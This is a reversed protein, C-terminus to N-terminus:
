KADAKAAEIAEIIATDSSGRYYSSSSTRFAGVSDGTRYLSFSQEGNETEIKVLGLGQWKSPHSDHRADRFLSLINVYHSRPVIFESIETGSDPRNFIKASMKTVEEPQPIHTSQQRSFFYWGFLSALLLAITIYKLQSKM